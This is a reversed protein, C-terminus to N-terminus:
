KGDISGYRGKGEICGHGVKEEIYGHRGKGENLWTRMERLIAM